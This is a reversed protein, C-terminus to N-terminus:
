DIDAHVYDVFVFNDQLQTLAYALAASVIAAAGLAIRLQMDPPIGATAASVVSAAILLKQWTKFTDHASKCSSCKLTHQEYRDLM